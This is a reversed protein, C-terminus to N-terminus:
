ISPSSARPPWGHCVSSLHRTLGSRFTDMASESGHPSPVPRHYLVFGTHPRPPSPFPPPANKWIRQGHLNHRPVRLGPGQYACLKRGGSLDSYPVSPVFSCRRSGRWGIELTIKYCNTYLFSYMSCTHLSCLLVVFDDDGAWRGVWSGWNSHKEGMGNGLGLYDHDQIKPKDNGQKM